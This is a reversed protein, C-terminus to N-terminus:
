KWETGMNDDTILPANALRKLFLLYYFSLADSKTSNSALAQSPSTQSSVVNM